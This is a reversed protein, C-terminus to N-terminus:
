VKLAELIVAKGYCSIEREANEEILKGSDHAHQYLLDLIARDSAELVHTGITEILERSKSSVSIILTRSQQITRSMMAM